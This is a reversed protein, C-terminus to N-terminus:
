RLKGRQRSTNAKGTWFDLENVGDIHNKHEVHTGLKDGKAIRERIDPVGADNVPCGCWRDWASAERYTQCGVSDM